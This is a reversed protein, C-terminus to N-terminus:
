IMTKGKASEACGFEGMTVFQTDEGPLSDKAVSCCLAMSGNNAQLVLSLTMESEGQFTIVAM